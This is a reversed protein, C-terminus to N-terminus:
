DTSQVSLALRLDETLQAKRTRLEEPDMSRLIAAPHWSLIVKPAFGNDTFVQGREQTIKPLRGLVSTGATAGLAL